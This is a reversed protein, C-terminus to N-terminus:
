LLDPHREYFYPNSWYTKRYEEIDFLSEKHLALVDTPSVDKSIDPTIWSLQFISLTRLLFYVSCIALNDFIVM